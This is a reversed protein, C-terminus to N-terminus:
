VISLRHVRNTQIWDPLRPNYCYLIIYQIKYLEVFNAGDLFLLLFKKPYSQWPLFVGGGPPHTNATTDSFFELWDTVFFSQSMWYNHVLM